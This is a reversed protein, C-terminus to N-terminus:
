HAPGEFNTKCYEGFRERAAVDYARAADEEAPFVGLYISKKDHMISAQWKGTHRSWTVGKYRSATNTTKARNMGNQQHTCFRLNDRQNNLPNRDRHDIENGKQAQMIARHMSINVKKGNARISRMAYYHGTKVKVACWKFCSLTEFDGDDVTAVKGQTLTIEKMPKEELYIAGDVPTMIAHGPLGLPGTDPALNNSTETTM